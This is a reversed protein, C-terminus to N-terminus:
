EVTEIHIDELGRAIRELIAIMGYIDGASGLQNWTNDKNHREIAGKETEKMSGIIDSFRIAAERKRPDESYLAAEFNSNVKKYAEKDEQSGLYEDFMKGTEGMAGWARAEEEMPDVSPTPAFAEGNAKELNIAAQNIWDKNGSDLADIYEQQRIRLADAPSMGTTDAPEKEPFNGGTTARNFDRIANQLEQSLKPLQEDWYVQGTQTWWNKIAETTKAAELESSGAEPPGNRYKDIEAQLATDGINPNSQWANYLTDAGTYNLNFTQRMREVIGERAKGEQRSALEM